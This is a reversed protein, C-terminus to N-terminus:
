SQAPSPHAMGMLTGFGFWAGFIPGVGMGVLPVPFAGFEPALACIALYTTLAYAQPSRIVTLPALVAGALSLVALAGLAPSMTTAIGVIGEVEPVPALTDQRVFSLM